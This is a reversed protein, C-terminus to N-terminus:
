AIGPRIGGFGSFSPVSYSMTKAASGVPAAGGGGLKAGPRAPQGSLMNAARGRRKSLRQDEALRLMTEDQTIAPTPREQKPPKSFLAAV